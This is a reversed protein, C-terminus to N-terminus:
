ISDKIADIEAEADDDSYDKIQELSYGAALLDHHYSSFTEPVPSVNQIEFETTEHEWHEHNMNDAALKALKDIAPDKKDEFEGDVVVQVTHTQTISLEVVMKAM